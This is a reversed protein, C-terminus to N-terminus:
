LLDPIIPKKKMADSIKQKTEASRPKGKKADSIKQRHEASHPKGKRGSPIGKKPSPKGIHAAAMKQKTEASRTKGKNADSIKQKTEASHTKGKMTGGGDLGNEPKINGWDKSEAINHRISFVLARKSITDSDTYPKSVYRTVVHKKGHKKIHDTWYVGSGKYKRIDQTTKGFYKLKTVSHQLIYLVTPPIIYTTM